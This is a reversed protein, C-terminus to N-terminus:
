KTKARKIEDETYEHQASETLIKKTSEYARELVFEDDATSSFLQNNTNEYIDIAKTIYKMSTKNVTIMTTKNRGFNSAPALVSIMYDYMDIMKATFQSDKDRDESGEVLKDKIVHKLYNKLLVRLVAQEIPKLTYVHFTPKTTM